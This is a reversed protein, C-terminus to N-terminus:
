LGAVFDELIANLAERYGSVANMPDASAISKRAEFYGGRPTADRNLLDTLRLDVGVVVAPVDGGNLQELRRVEGTLRWQGVAGSSEALVADAIGRQSLWSQAFDAILKTPRDAWLDYHYQQLSIGASDESYLMQPSGHLDGAQWTDILLVGSLRPEGQHTESSPLRYFVEDPAPGVTSCGAISLATALLIAQTRM